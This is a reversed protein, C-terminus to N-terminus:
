MPTADGGEEEAPAEGPMAEPATPLSELAALTMPGAIGDTDLGEREQFRKVAEETKPGFVGDVPGPNIGKGLLRKQLSKVDEGSDGRRLM